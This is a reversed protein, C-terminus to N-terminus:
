ATRDPPYRFKTNNTNLLLGCLSHGSLLQEPGFYLQFLSHPQNFLVPYMTRATVQPTSTQASPSSLRFPLRLATQDHVVPCRPGSIPCLVAQAGYHFKRELVAPRDQALTPPILAVAPSVAKPM